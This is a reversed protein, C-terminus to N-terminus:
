GDLLLSTMPGTPHHPYPGAAQGDLFWVFPGYCVLVCAPFAPFAPWLPPLIPARAGARVQSPKGLLDTILQLQGVADRGPFLPKGLLVEAFICGISWMDVAQAMMIM